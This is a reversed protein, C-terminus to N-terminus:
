KKLIKHRPYGADILAKVDYRAKGDDPYDWREMVEDQREPLVMADHDSATNLKIKAERRLLRNNVQKASKNSGSCAIPGFPNKKRSRSM